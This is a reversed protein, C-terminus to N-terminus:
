SEEELILEANGSTASFQVFKVVMFITPDPGGPAQNRSPRFVRTDRNNGAKVSM